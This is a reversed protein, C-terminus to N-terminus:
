ISLSGVKLVEMLEASSTDVEKLTYTQEPNCLEARWSYLVDSNSFLRLAQVRKPIIPHTMGLERFKASLSHINDLQKVYEEINIKKLKAGGGTTLNTLATMSAQVDGCCILGARDSTIEACRSWRALLLTVGTQVVAKALNLFVLPTGMLDMGDLVLRAVRNSMLEFITQYAGHFNHIHGCEHGMVFRFEAPEFAEYLASTVVIMPEVETSAFTFANMEPHNIIFVQPIGVGLRRACEEAVEFIESYQHPGVAVGDMHYIQKQLPIALAALSQALQRILPLAALQQRLQRDLAFGYDPVGNVLHAAAERKRAELYAGFDLNLNATPNAILSTQNTM